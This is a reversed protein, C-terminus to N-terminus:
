RGEKWGQESGLGGRPDRPRKPGMTRAPHSAEEACPSSRRGSLPPVRRARQRPQGVTRDQAGQVGAGVVLALVVLTGIGLLVLATGVDDVVFVGLGTAIGVGGAVMVPVGVADHAAKWAEDSALAERTRLGASHNRALAGRRQRLGVWFVVAGGAVM